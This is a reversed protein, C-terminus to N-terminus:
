VCLWTGATLTAVIAAIEHARHSTAHGAALEDSAGTRTEASDGM